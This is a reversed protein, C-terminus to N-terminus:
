LTRQNSIDPWVPYSRVRAVLLSYRCLGACAAHTCTTSDSVEIQFPPSGSHEVNPTEGLTTRAKSHWETMMGTSGRGNACPKRM